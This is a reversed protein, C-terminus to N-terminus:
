QVVHAHFWSQITAQHQGAWIYNLRQFTIGTTQRGPLATVGSIIPNFYSDTDNPDHIMVNQGAQSLVYNVFAKAAALNRSKLNIAIEGPLVTVGSKPYVVGIPPNGTLKAGYYASDQVIGVDLAGTEVNHLTPDNTQFIKLGNNKLQQFYSEGKTLGGERLMQGAIFPFAPGSYAPDNEAVKGKYTSTLLDSWDKPAQSASLRRTNYIIVGAATVGTPYFAHSTPILSKGLTTYNKVNAPTWTYLLHQDNLAQMTADGDFWAVDWHPNNKEAEMKAVLSGTSDDTLLVKTGSAKAYAKSMASDYGQASYLVISGGSADRAHPQAAHVPAILSAYLAAALGAAVTRRLTRTTTM